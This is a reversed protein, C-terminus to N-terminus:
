SSGSGRESLARDGCEDDKGAVSRAILPWSDRAGHEGEGEHAM